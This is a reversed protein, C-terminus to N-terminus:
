ENIAHKVFSDTKTSNKPSDKNWYNDNEFSKRTIDSPSTDDQNPSKPIFGKSFSNEFSKDPVQTFKKPAAKKGKGTGGMLFTKELNACPTEIVITFLFSTLFSVVTWGFFTLINLNINSWIARPRNFAEFTMFTPHILYAGFSIRALPTFFDHGLIARMFKWNGLLIPFLYLSFAFTFLPRSLTMYFANFINSFDDPQNNIPMFTFALMVIIGFGTWYCAQRLVWSKHVKDCIRKIMSLEPEDNRYSYIFMGLYIGIFFPSIRMYPKMYYVRYYNSKIRSFSPSFENDYLIIVSAIWCCVMVVTISVMGAVRWRYLLYVILPLLLFFQMDNPLYWTWGLCQEDSSFPYFNNIFLVHSWWYKTCAGSYDDKYMFFVPGNGAMAMVQWFFLITAFYLPAIRLFRHLIIM